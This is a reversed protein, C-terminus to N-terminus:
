GQTLRPKEPKMCHSGLLQRISLRCQFLLEIFVHESLVVNFYYNLLFMNLYSWLHYIHYTWYISTWIFDNIFFCYYFNLLNTFILDDKQTFEHEPVIMFSLNLLHMNLQSWLYFCSLQKTYEHKSSIMFLFLIPKTCAHKSSIM